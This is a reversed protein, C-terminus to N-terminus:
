KQKIDCKINFFRTRTLINPQIYSEGSFLKISNAGPRIGLAATKCEQVDDGYINKNQETWVCSFDFTLYEHKELKKTVKKGSSENM